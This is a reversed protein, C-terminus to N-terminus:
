WSAFYRVQMRRSYKKTWLFPYLACKEGPSRGPGRDIVDNIHLVKLVNRPIIYQRNTM